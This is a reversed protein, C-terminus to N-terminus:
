TIFRTALKADPIMCENRRGFWKYRNKSIFNYIWNRVVPPVIIFGYMLSFPSKLRRAVLLAATSQTYIHGNQLLILSNFDQSRFNHGPLLLSAKPNQLSCFKFVAKPDRKVVFQVAANCLNCVGDFFIVPQDNM